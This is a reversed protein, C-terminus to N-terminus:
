AAEAAALLETLPGFLMPPAAICYAGSPPGGDLDGVRMGAEAAIVSGAVLDWRQLGREFYADVRACAVSCLDLAAGGMRRIDRIHPLVEAVVLAQRRRETASYSFGTSVLALALDDLRSGHIRTGNLFAGGDRRASFVENHVPDAVVGISDVGDVTAGISVSYGPHRYIYNTTGDLPDIVWEVGSTGDIGTGEEAVIADHPRLEALREVILRETAADVDTVMDTVTGKTDIVLDDRQSAVALHRAALDAVDLAVGLLSDLDAAVLSTTPPPNPGAANM